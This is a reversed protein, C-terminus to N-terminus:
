KQNRLFDKLLLIENSNKWSGAETAWFHNELMMGFFDAEYKYKLVAM